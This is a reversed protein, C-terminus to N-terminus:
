IYARMEQASNNFAQRSSCLREVRLVFVGDRFYVGWGQHAEDAFQEASSFFFFFIM